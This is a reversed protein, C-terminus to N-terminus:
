APALTDQRRNKHYTYRTLDPHHIISRLTAKRHAAKDPLTLCESLKPHRPIHPTPSVGAPNDRALDKVDPGGIGWDLCLIVLPLTTTAAMGQDGARLGTTTPLVVFRPDSM